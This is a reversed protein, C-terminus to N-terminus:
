TKAADDQSTVPVMPQSFTVSLSPALEVEGEPMYRLVTLENGADAAKPPLLSSPPPPFADKITEGTRPPPQSAPRLAFAQQDTKDMVLAEARALISQVDADGLPKAAALKSKDFPPPGAKGNSLRLDLGDPVEKPPKKVSAVAAPKSAPKDGCKCGAAAL